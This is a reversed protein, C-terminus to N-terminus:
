RSSLSSSVYKILLLSSSLALARWNERSGEKAQYDNLWVLPVNNDVAVLISWRPNSNRKLKKRILLM